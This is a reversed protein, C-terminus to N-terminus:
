TSHNALRSYPHNFFRAWVDDRNDKSQKERRRRYWVLVKAAKSLEEDVREPINITASSRNCYEDTLTQIRDYTEYKYKDPKYSVFLPKPQEPAAEQNAPSDPNAARNPQSSGNSDARAKGKKDKKSKSKKCEDLEMNSLGPDSNGNPPKVDFRFYPTGKLAGKVTAHAHETDTIQQRAWNMVGLVNRFRSQPERHGTGVSVFVAVEEPKNARDAMQLAENWAYLAPNNAGVGGDMYRVGGLNIKNFYLPAASTARCAEWIKTPDRQVRGPNLENSTPLNYCTPVAEVHDYSRFLYPKDGQGRKRDGERIAVLAVKCSYNKYKGDLHSFDYQRLLDEGNCPEKPDQHERCHAKVVFKVARRLRRHDYKTLRWWRWNGFIYTGLQKYAHICADMDLRLRGLMVAILGGTSTGIIFDFYHCPLLLTAKGGSTVGSITDGSQDPPSATSAHGVGSPNQDMEEDQIKEMLRKLIYLSSLGRIGGGDLTLVIPQWPDKQSKWGGWWKPLRIQSTTQNSQSDQTTTPTAQSSEGVQKTAPAARSSDGVEETAPTARPLEGVQEAAPAPQPPEGVQEAALAPQSSAGVQESASCTSFVGRSGGNTDSM